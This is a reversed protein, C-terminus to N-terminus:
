LNISDFLSNFYRLNAEEYISEPAQAAIYIATDGDKAIILLRQHVSTNNSGLYSFNLEAAKKGNLLMEKQSNLRYNPYLKSYTKPANSLLLPLIEQKSLAAVSQLGTEYRATVLMQPDTSNLRLIFNDMKDQATLSVAKLPPKYNLSLGTQVDRFANYPSPRSILYITVGVGILATILGAILWRKM